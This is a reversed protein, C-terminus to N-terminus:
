SLPVSRSSTENKLIRLVAEWGIKFRLRTRTGKLKPDANPVKTTVREM